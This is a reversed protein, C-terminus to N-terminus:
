GDQEVSGQEGLQRGLHIRAALPALEVGKAVGSRHETRLDRDLHALREGAVAEPKGVHVVPFRGASGGPALWRARGESAMGASGAYSGAMDDGGARMVASSSSRPYKGSLRVSSTRPTSMTFSGAPQNCPRTVM